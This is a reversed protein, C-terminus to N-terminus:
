SVVANEYHKLFMSIAIKKDRATRTKRIAALLEWSHGIAAEQDKM